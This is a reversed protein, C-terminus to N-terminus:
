LAETRMANGGETVQQLVWATNRTNDAISKTLQELKVAQSKNEERLAQIEAILERNGSGGVAPNFAKPVIREGEHVKALMDHPVYDTGVAFSPVALGYRSSLQGATGSLSGATQARILQLEFLSTAQSEALRLLTQSLSPLLKAAEQDGARAQATTIAFQAQANAFSQGSSEGMLGRIRAVESFISDTVSQWASKIQEAARASDAAAQAQAAALQEAAKQAAETDAIQKRLAANLDYAAIVRDKDEAGLGTTLQALDRERTRREVEASNGQLGLLQNELDFRTNGLSGLTSQLAQLAQAASAAAAQQDQLAYIQEQLARNSSYLASLERERLAATNGQLQLLQTELGARQSAIAQQQALAEAAQQKQQDALQESATKAANLAEIQKRLADNYDYAALAAAADSASLGATIKDLAQQRALSDAGASNGQARLLDVMLSAQDGALSALAQRGAEAMKAAAEASTDALTTAAATVEAFAPSLKLLAAYTNRGAETTLDQAEVLSRYADRSNPLALGLDGLAKTIQQTSTAAREVDSYFNQYYSGAAQTLSEVGGFATLLATVADGSVSALQPLASGLNALAAQTANIQAVTGALQEISPAAGLKDLMGQAWSPLGIGDLASRVDASVAALYQKTGAEGDAFGTGPWKGNGEAGFGGVMQEGLKIALAGWAGDKSSDDAFAAAATYGAQKGFTAATSDLIGVIGQAIGSTFQETQTSYDGLNSGVGNLGMGTLLGQGSSFSSSAGTHPTGSHDVAKALAALAGVALGIPGLVGAISGLGSAISGELLAGVGGSLAEGFGLSSLEGIGGFVGGAVSSATGLFGGGSMLGYLGGAGGLGAIGGRNLVDVGAMGNSFASGTGLLGGLGGLGGALQAAVPNVIASIVPRLVMTKITSTITDWMAKFFGKGSEFGRMLADTLTDEIKSAAREWEETAKKAADAASEKAAAGVKARALDRYAQAQLKLLNYQETDLNRDLVKIAQLERDTALMGLKSADLQAIAVKTLGLRETHEEQAKIDALIKDLGAQLSVSYKEHAQAADVIAKAEAKRAEEDAKIGDRIIPQQSLLKRQAEELQEVSLKGQKFTNSLIGWQKSFDGTLGSLEALLKAQDELAKNQATIAKEQDALAKVIPATTKTDGLLAPNVVGRGAGATSTLIGANLLDYQFKDLEARARVGDAKVADSIAHFGNIDLRGLAVVQAAIAAVERGFGSLTFMLDSGLITIAEIVTRAMSGMAAAFSHAGDRTTIFAQALYNLTPLLQGAVAIKAGESSAAIRTLNDNFAEASKALDEGFVVGLQRAEEAMTNLGASGANLLPILDGGQRGFLELSLAAKEPGDKFDAFRGAIERLMADAGKLSGDLGTVSLGIAAFAAAQEKSGKAAEAMNQSLKRLGTGLAETNVDNLAAAFGLERLAEVAVGSRQALKTTADAADIASKVYATLGGVSVAVGLGAMVGSMGRLSAVFSDNATAAAVTKARTAELQELHPRLIDLNGGRQKALAEFYSVTGREGAEMAATTRQISSLISKTARDVKQAGQEAGGGIKDVGAAAQQGAQAVSQAMDRGAQKVQEFGARAGTADVGTELQIKRSEAM